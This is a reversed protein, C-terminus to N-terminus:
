QQQKKLIFGAIEIGRINKGSLYVYKYLLHERKAQKKIWEDGKM